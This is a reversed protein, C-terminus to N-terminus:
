RGPSSATVSHAHSEFRDPLEIGVGDGMVAGLPQVLGLTQVTLDDRGIRAMGLRPVAQAHDGMELAAPGFGRIMNAGRNTEAAPGGTMMEVEGQDQVLEVPVFFGGFGAAGGQTELGIERRGEIRPTQRQLIEAPEVLRDRGIAGGRLPLRIEGLRPIALGIGAQQGAIEGGAPFEIFPPPAQERLTDRIRLRLPGSLIDGALGQQDM